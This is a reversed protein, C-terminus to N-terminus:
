RARHHGSHKPLPMLLHLLTALFVLPRVPASAPHCVCVQQPASFRQPIGLPHQLRIRLVLMPPLLLPLFLQPLNALRMRALLM